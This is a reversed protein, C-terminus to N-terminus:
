PEFERLRVPQGTRIVEDYFTHAHQKLDPYIDALRKGVLSEDFRLIRQMAANMFRYRYDRTNLVAVAVPLNDLLTQLFAREAEQEELLMQLQNEVLERTTVDTLLGVVGTVQGTQNFVPSAAISVYVEGSDRRRLRFDFRVSEGALCATFHDHARQRDEPFVFDSARRGIVHEPSHGLMEAMRSNVYTTMREQDLSWIGEAANEVIGRYRKESEWLAHMATERTAPLASSEAAAAEEPSRAPHADMLSSIMAAIVGDPLSGSLLAAPQLAALPSTEMGSPTVCVLLPQPARSGSPRSTWFAAFEGADM